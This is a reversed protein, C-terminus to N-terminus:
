QMLQHYTKEGNSNGIQLDIAFQPRAIRNASPLGALLQRTLYELAPQVIDPDFHSGAGRMVEESAQEFSVCRHYPRDHVMADVADVISFIRAGIAIERGKLGHPYGSGDFKEHHSLVIEAGGRLFELRGLLNFGDQPHRRMIAWEKETLGGTKWLIRDPVRLKGIDHLLAGYEIQVLANSDLAPEQAIGLTLHAVRRCHGSTGQDKLDLTAALAERTASHIDSLSQLAGVLEKNNRTHREM